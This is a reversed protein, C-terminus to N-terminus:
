SSLLDLYKQSCLDQRFNNPLLNKNNSISNRSLEATRLMLAPLESNDNFLAGNFGSQIIENNGDVNRLVCPVDFYLAELVSRPVGESLSPLVLVDANAIYKYPENVYGHFIVINKLNLDNVRKKAEGLLVGDGFMDLTLKVGQSHLLVAADILLLPQKGHTFSGTYIFKYSGKKKSKHYYTKLRSEDIFNPIISSKRGTYKQVQNAMFDTMSVIHDMRELRKFQSYAILKGILGYNHKYNVPLNGRVSGCTIAYKVCLSNIFDASFSSSITAISKSNGSQMLIKKLIKLKKHWGYKALSIWEVNDDLLNFDSIGHKLTIFTVPIKQSLFNALAAAGKIPSTNVSSPVIIFIENIKM